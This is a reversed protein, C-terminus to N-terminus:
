IDEDLRSCELASAVLSAANDLLLQAIVIEFLRLRGDPPLQELTELSERLEAPWNYRLEVLADKNSITEGTLRCYLSHSLINMLALKHIPEIKQLQEGFRQKLWDLLVDGDAYLGKSDIMM